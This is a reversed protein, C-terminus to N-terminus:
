FFPVIHVGAFDAFPSTSIDEDTPADITQDSDSGLEEYAWDQSDFSDESAPSSETTSPSEDLQIRFYKVECDVRSIPAPNQADITQDSDSGLPAYPWDQSDFSNESAPSSETTSSEAQQYGFHKDECDVRSILAPNQADISQDSDSGLPAYPWDQSDFSNESAPSAETTSHSQDQQYGFHKAECDVRSILWDRSDFSNESAPSSGTTSHSQDQQYGFHKVECDVIIAPKQASRGFRRKIWRFLRIGHM